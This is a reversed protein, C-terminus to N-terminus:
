TILKQFGFLINETWRLLVNSCSAPCMPLLQWQRATVSTFLLGDHLSPLLSVESKMRANMGSVGPQVCLSPVADQKLAFRVMGTPASRNATVNEFCDNTFHDCCITFDRWSSEKFQQENARALFEVWELRREPDGPLTFRQALSTCGAVSCM